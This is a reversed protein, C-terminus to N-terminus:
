YNWRLPLTLYDTWHVGTKLNISRQFITILSM